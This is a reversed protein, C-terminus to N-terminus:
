ALRSCCLPSPPAKRPHRLRCVFRPCPMCRQAPRTRQAGRRIKQAIPQLLAESRLDSQMARYGVFSSDCRNSIQVGVRRRRSRSTPKRTTQSLAGVSLMCLIEHSSKAHLWAAPIPDTASTAMDSIVSDQRCLCQLIRWDIRRSWRSM